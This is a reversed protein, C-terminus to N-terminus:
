HSVEAEIPVPDVAAPAITQSPLVVSTSSGSPPTTTPQPPQQLGHQQAFAVRAREKAQSLTDQIAGYAEMAFDQSAIALRNITPDRMARTVAVEFTGIATQAVADIRQQLRYSENLQQWMQDLRHAQTAVTESIHLRSDQEGLWLKVRRTVGHREDYNKVYLFGSALVGVLAEPPVLLRDGTLSSSASASISQPPRPTTLSSVLAVRVAGGLVPTGDASLSAAASADKAFVIFAQQYAPGDSAGTMANTGQFLIRTIEGFPSFKEYLSKETVAPDDYPVGRVIVTRTMEVGSLLSPATPDDSSGAAPPTESSGAPTVVARITALDVIYWDRLTAGDVLETGEFVLQTIYAPPLKTVVIPPWDVIRACVKLSEQSVGMKLAVIARLTEVPTDSALGPILWNANNTPAIVVNM